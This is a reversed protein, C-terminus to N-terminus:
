FTYEIDIISSANVRASCSRWISFCGSRLNTDETVENTGTDSRLFIALVAANALLGLIAWLWINNSKKQRPIVSSVFKLDPQKEIQREHEARTLADLIMSM